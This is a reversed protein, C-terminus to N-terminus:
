VGFRGMTKEFSMISSSRWRCWRTCFCPSCEVNRGGCMSELSSWLHQQPVTANRIEACGVACAVGLSCTVFVSCVINLASM